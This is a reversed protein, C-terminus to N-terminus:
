SVIPTDRERGLAFSILAPSIISHWVISRARALAREEGVRLRSDVMLRQRIPRFSNMRVPCGQFRFGRGVRDGFITARTVM